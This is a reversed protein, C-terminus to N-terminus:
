VFSSLCLMEIRPTRIKTMATVHVKGKEDPIGAHVSKTTVDPGGCQDQLAVFNGHQELLPACPGGAAGGLCIGPQHM